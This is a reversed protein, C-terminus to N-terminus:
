GQEAETAADEAPQKVGGFRCTLSFSVGENAEFTRGLTVDAFHGSDNLNNHFRSVANYTTAKGSVSISNANATMSELWLFDPLNKSIQDLIHVPAAQQKKLNTILDIKRQLLEKQRTYEDRKRRVDALRLLETDAEDNKVRLEATTSKLSWWWGGSILVGVMLIAVLLLNQGSGMGEVQIASPATKAKSRRKEALLNIKIM